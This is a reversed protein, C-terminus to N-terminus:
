WASGARGGPRAPRGGRRGRPSARRSGRWAREPNIRPPKGAARHKTSGSACSGSSSREAIRSAWSGPSKGPKMPSTPASGASAGRHGGRKANAEASKRGTRAASPRRRKWKSSSLPLPVEPIEFRGGVMLLPEIGAHDLRAALDDPLGREDQEGEPRSRARVSIRARRARAPGRPRARPWAPARASGSPRPRRRPACGPRARPPM